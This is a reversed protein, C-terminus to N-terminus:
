ENKGEKKDIPYLPKIAEQIEKKTLNRIYIAKKVRFKGDSNYPIALIDKSDFKFVAYTKSIDSNTEKLCWELTALNIGKDCSIREDSNGDDVKYEKGIEYNFNQYPSIQGDLYKFAIIKNSQWKLLNLDSAFKSPLNEAEGLNAGWLDAGRLDAEGLNAGRLDAKNKCVLEKLSLNEDYIVNGDTKKIIM